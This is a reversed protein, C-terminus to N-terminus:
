GNDYIALQKLRENANLKEKSNVLALAYATLAMSYPKNLTKYQKELYDKALLISAESAQFGFIFVFCLNRIIRIIYTGSQRLREYSDFDSIKLRPRCYRFIQFFILLIAKPAM